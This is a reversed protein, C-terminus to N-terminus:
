LHLQNLQTYLEKSQQDDVVCILRHILDPNNLILQKWIECFRKSNNEVTIQAYTADAFWFVLHDSHHTRRRGKTRSVRVSHYCEIFEVEHYSRYITDKGKEDHAIGFEFFRNNEKDPTGALFFAIFGLLCFIIVIIHNFMEEFTANVFPNNKVIEMLSWLWFISILRFIIMGKTKSECLYEGQDM